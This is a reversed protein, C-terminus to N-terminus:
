KGTTPYNRSKKPWFRIVTDQPKPPHEKLWQERATREAEHRLYEEALHERNADYYTHLADLPALAAPPPTEKGADALRYESRQSSFRDAAPLEKRWTSGRAAADQNAAEIAETSDNGLGMIILYVSDATEIKGHGALYNFDINSWARYQRNGVSWRLETVRHDYVTAFIMLVEFKKKARAEQAAIQEPSLPKVAPAPAPPGPVPPVPPVVHQYFISRDPFKVEVSELVKLNLVPKAETVSPIEEAVAGGAGLALLPPM